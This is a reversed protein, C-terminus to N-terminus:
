RVVSNGSTRSSDCRRAAVRRPSQPDARRKRECPQLVRSHRVQLQERLERMSSELRRIRDDLTSVDNHLARVILSLDKLDIGKPAVRGITSLVVHRDLM